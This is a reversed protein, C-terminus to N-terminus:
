GRGWRLMVALFLQLLLYRGLLLWVVFFLTSPWGAAAQVAFMISPWNELTLMQLYIRPMNSIQLRPAITPM